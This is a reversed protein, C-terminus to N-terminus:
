MGSHRPIRQRPRRETGSNDPAEGTWVRALPSLPLPPSRTLQAFYVRRSNARESADKTEKDSAVEFCQQTAVSSNVYGKCSLGSSIVVETALEFDQDQQIISFVAKLLRMPCM